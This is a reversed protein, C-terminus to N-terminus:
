AVDEHGAGSVVAAAGGGVVVVELTQRMGLVFGSGNGVVQPARWDEAVLWGFARMM